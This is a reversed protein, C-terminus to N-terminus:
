IKRTYRCYPKQPAKKKSLIKTEFLFPKSFPYSDGKLHLCFSFALVYTTSPLCPWPWGFSGDLLWRPPMKSMTRTRQIARLVVSSQQPGSSVLCCSFTVVSLWLWWQKSQKSQKLTGTMHSHDNVKALLLKGPACTESYHSLCTLPFPQPFPQSPVDPGSDAWSSMKVGQRRGGGCEIWNVGLRERHEKVKEFTM